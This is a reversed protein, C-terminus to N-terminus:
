KDKEELITNSPKNEDTTKNLHELIINLISTLEIKGSVEAKKLSISDGDTEIIIQRIRGEKLKNIEM